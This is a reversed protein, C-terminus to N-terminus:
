GVVQEGVGRLVASLWVLGYGLMPRTGDVLRKLEAVDDTLQGITHKTPEQYPDYRQSPSVEWYFDESITVAKVGKDELHSLLADTAARLLEISVNTMEIRM